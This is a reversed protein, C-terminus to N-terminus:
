RLLLRARTAPSLRVFVAHPIGRWGLDRLIRDARELLVDREAAEAPMLQPLTQRGARIKRNEVIKRMRRVSARLRDMAGIM